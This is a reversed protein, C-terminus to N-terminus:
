QLANHVYTTAIEDSPGAINLRSLYKRRTILNLRRYSKKWPKLQENYGNNAAM